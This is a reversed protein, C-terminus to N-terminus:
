RLRGANFLATREELTSRYMKNVAAGAAQTDFHHWPREPIHGKTHSQGGYKTGQHVPGYIPGTWILFLRKAQILWSFRKRDLMDPKAGGVLWFKRGARRAAKRGKGAKLAARRRKRSRMKGGEGALGLQKKYSDSYEAYPQNDPGIGAKATAIVANIVEKAHRVTAHKHVKDADLFSELGRAYKQLDKQFRQDAKAM